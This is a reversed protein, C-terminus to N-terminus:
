DQDEDFLLKATQMPLGLMGALLALDARNRLRADIGTNLRPVLGDPPAFVASLAVALPAEPAALDELRAACRDCTDIHADIAPSTLDHELWGRLKSASPHRWKM